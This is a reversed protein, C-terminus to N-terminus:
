SNHTKWQGTKAIFKSNFIAMLDPPMHGEPKIIKGTEDIQSGKALNNKAVALTCHELADLSSFFDDNICFKKGLKKWKEYVIHHCFKEYIQSKETFLAVFKPPKYECIGLGFRQSVGLMAKVVNADGHEKRHVAEVLDGLRRMTIFNSPPMTKFFYLLVIECFHVDCIEKLLAKRLDIDETDECWKGFAEIMELNEELWVILQREYDAKSKPNKGCALLWETAIKASEEDIKIM